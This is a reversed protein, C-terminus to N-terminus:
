EEEEEDTEQASDVNKAATERYKSENKTDQPSNLRQHQYGNTHRTREISGLHAGCLFAVSM